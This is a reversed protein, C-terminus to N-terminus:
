TGGQFLSIGGSFSNNGTLRLVGTGLKFLRGSGGIPQDLTLTVGPTQSVANFFGGAGLGAGAPGITIPRSVTLSSTTAPGFQNNPFFLLAQNVNATVGGDLVIPANAAGL